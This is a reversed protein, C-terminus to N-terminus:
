KFCPSMGGAAAKAFIGGALAGAARALANATLKGSVVIAAYVNRCTAVTIVGPAGNGSTAQFKMGVGDIKVSGTCATCSRAYARKADHTSDYVYILLFAEVPATATGKLYSAQWGSRFGPRKDAPPNPTAALGTLARYRAQGATLAISRADGTFGGALSASASACALAGALLLTLASRGATPEPEWAGAQTTL